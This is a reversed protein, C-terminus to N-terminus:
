QIVQKRITFAGPLAVVGANINRRFGACVGDDKVREHTPSRRENLCHAQSDPSDPNIETGHCPPRHPLLEKSYRKLLEVM